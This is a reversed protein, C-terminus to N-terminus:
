RPELRSGGTIDTHGLVPHGGYTLVSAGSLVVSLTGDTDLDARSGGSLDADVNNLTFGALRASSAGSEILRLNGGAGSLQIESGGNQHLSTSTATLRGSTHSAGSSELVFAGTDAELRLESGGSLEIDARGTKINATVHSAGSIDGRFDGTRVELDLTSGGSVTATLPNDSQFGSVTAHVAGSFELGSLQPMAIDAEFPGAGFLMNPQTVSVRLTNGSKDVRIQQFLGERATIKVSFADSRTITVTFGYGIDVGTFGSLDYERTTIPGANKTTVFWGCGSSLAAVAVVVSILALSLWRAKM